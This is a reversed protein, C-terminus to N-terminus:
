QKKDKSYIIQGDSRTDQANDSKGEVLKQESIARGMKAFMGIFAKHGGLGTADLMAIVDKDAFQDRGKAVYTLEGDLKAGYFDRTEKETNAVFTEFSSKQFEQAKVIQSAQFNALKQVQENTLGIEKAIPTFEALVAEDVPMGEPATVEYKEPVTPKAPEAEGEKAVEKGAEVTPKATETTTTQTKGAESLLSPKTTSVPSKPGTEAPKAEPTTATAVPKTEPVTASAATVTKEVPAATPTTTEAAPATATESM